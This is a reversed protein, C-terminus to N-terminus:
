REDELRLIAWLLEEKTRPGGYAMAQKKEALLAEYRQALESRTLKVLEARTKRDM